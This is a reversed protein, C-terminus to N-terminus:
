ITKLTFSLKLNKDEGYPISIKEEFERETLIDGIEEILPEKRSCFIVENQKNTWITLGRTKGKHIFHLFVREEGIQLLSIANPGKLASFLADLADGAEAKEKLLEEFFHPIVESDILQTKESEFTHVRSLKERIEKYNVFNGNHVSVVKLNPYCRALYPQAMEKFCATKMFWPSPMRVHGVLVTAEAVDAIKSLYEAPSGDVKGVKKLVINEDGKFIAVGAGYGGVPKVERPYKHVELKKLVKFVKVLSVPKMLAFGFIGCM